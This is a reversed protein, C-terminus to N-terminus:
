MRDLALIKVMTSHLHKDRKQLSLAVDLGLNENRPLLNSYNISVKELGSYARQVRAQSVSFREGREVGVNV